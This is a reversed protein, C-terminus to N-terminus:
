AGLILFYIFLISHYLCHGGLLTFSVFIVSIYFVEHTLLTIFTVGTGLIYLSGQPADLIGLINLSPTYM